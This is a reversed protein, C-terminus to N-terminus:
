EKMGSSSMTEIIQNQSFIFFLVPVILMIIAAAAGAGARAIGGSVIQSLAYPLTKLQESYVYTANSANWLGQFSFIALTLWAPKVSPMIIVWFIRWEKAGDVKAAEIVSDNIQTMFQRMLFLGLPTGFAPIIVAWYTDTLHLTSMTMYNAIDSVVPSFMLSSVVISFLVGFGPLKYKALPYAALSAFIVHGVTGVLTIFVTNFIYRSLPVWTQSMLSSLLRFNNLTPKQVLIRPPYLFIENVPKLAQSFSLILPLISYFGFLVLVIITIADGYKSRTVRVRGSPRIKKM